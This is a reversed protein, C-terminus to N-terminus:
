LGVAARWDATYREATFRAEYTARANRGAPCVEDRGLRALIRRARRRRPARVDVRRLRRHHHRGSRRRLHRRRTPRTRLGRDRDVRVRRPHRQPRPRRRGRRPLARHRSGRRRHHHQRPQADTRRAVRRRDVSRQAASWGPRRSTGPRRHPGLRGATHSPGQHREVPQRDHLHTTGRPRRPHRIVDARRDRQTGGRGPPAAIAPPQRPGPRLGRDSPPLCPRLPRPHTRRQEVVDRAQTRDGTTRRGTPRGTRVPVRREDHPLRTGSTHNAAPAPNAALAPRPRRAGPPQPIGAPSDPPRPTARNSRPSRTRRM